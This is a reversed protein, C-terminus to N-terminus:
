AAPRSANPRVLRVLGMVAVASFMAIVPEVPLRGRISGYFVLGVATHAAIVGYYFAMERWRRRTVVLGALFLPFAVAAYVLGADFAAAASGLRSEKSFWWGSRIGSLGMDSRLRWFRKFKWWTIRPMMRANDRVFEKGLRYAYDDRAREDLRALQRYYPLAELPAVGGRYHAVEVVRENNGQYFTIGGHTTLGVWGGFTVQNRFAWPLLLAALVLAVVAVQAIRTPWDGRACVLAAVCVWVAVPLGTPRTLAALALVVAGYFWRSVPPADAGARPLLRLGLLLLVIYLNETLAYGSIFILFPNLAAFAAAVCATARDFHRRTTSYVLWVIVIGLVIQVVRGVMPRPGAVRYLLSLFAPYAPPRRGTPGNSEDIFGKGAALNAALLHYDAEDAKPPSSIGVVGLGFGTRFLAALILVAPLVTRSHRRM